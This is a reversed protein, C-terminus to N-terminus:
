WSVRSGDLREAIFGSGDEKPFIDSIGSELLHAVPYSDGGYDPDGWTVVTKDEVYKYEGLSSDLYYTRKLAAFAGNSSVIKTIDMRLRGAVFSSDGGYRPDGWTVVSGDRKLAAFAYHTSVIDHVNFLRNAVLYTDEGYRPDGWVVVSTDKKLFAIAGVTSVTKHISQSSLNLERLIPAIAETGVDLKTPHAFISSSVISTFLLFAIFLKM